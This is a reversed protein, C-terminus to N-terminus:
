LLKTPVDNAFKMALNSLQPAKSIIHDLCAIDYELEECEMKEKARNKASGPTGKAKMKEDKSYNKAKESVEDYEKSKKLFEIESNEFKTKSEQIRKILESDGNTSLLIRKQAQYSIRESNDLKGELIHETSLIGKVKKVRDLFVSIRSNVRNKENQAHTHYYGINRNMLERRNEDLVPKRKRSQRAKKADDQKKLYKEEKQVYKQFSELDSFDLSDKQAAPQQLPPPYPPPYQNISGSNSGFTAANSNGGEQDFGQLIPNLLPAPISHFVDVPSCFPEQQNRHPLQKEALRFQRKQLPRQHFSYPAVRKRKAFHNPNAETTSPAYQHQFDNSYDSSLPEYRRFQSSTPEAYRIEMVKPFSSLGDGINFSSSTSPGSQYKSDTRPPITAITSSLSQQFYSDQNSSSPKERSDNEYDCHLFQSNEVNVQKSSVAVTPKQQSNFDRSRPPRDPAYCQSSTTEEDETEMAEPPCSFEIEGIDNCINAQTSTSHSSQYGSETSPVEHDMFTENNSSFTGSPDNESIAPENNMMSSSSQAQPLGVSTQASEDSNKDVPEVELLESYLPFVDEIDQDIEYIGNLDWNIRNSAGRDERGDNATDRRNSIFDNGGAPGTSIANLNKSGMTGDEPQDIFNFWDALYDDESAM